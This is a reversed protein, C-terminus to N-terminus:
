GILGTILLGLYTLVGGTVLVALVIALIRVPLPFSPRNRRKDKAM